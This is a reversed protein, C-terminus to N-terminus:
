RRGEEVLPVGLRKAHVRARQRVATRATARNPRTVIVQEGGDPRDVVQWQGDLPRASVLEHLFNPMMQSASGPAAAIFAPGSRSRHSEVIRIQPDAVSPGRTPIVDVRDQPGYRWSFAATTWATWVRVRANHEVVRTVTEWRGLPSLVQWGADLDVATYRPEPTAPAHGTAEDIGQDALATWQEMQEVTPKDGSRLLHLAQILAALMRNQTTM